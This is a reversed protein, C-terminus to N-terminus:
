SFEIRQGKVDFVIHECINTIHDGARELNRMMGIMPILYSVDEQNNLRKQLLGIVEFFILDIEKDEEPILMATEADRKVYADISHDLMILIADTLKSSLEKIEQDVEENKILFSAIGKAYDGIRELESAIKIAAVVIRLDSAVPSLLALSEIALTNAEEEGINVFEDMSIVKLAKEMDNENMAEIALRYMNAVRNAMKVICAVILENKEDIKFVM